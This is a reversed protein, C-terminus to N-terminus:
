DYRCKLGNRFASAVCFPTLIREFYMICTCCHLGSLCITFRVHCVHLYLTCLEVLPIDDFLIGGVQM